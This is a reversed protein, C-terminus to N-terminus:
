ARANGNHTEDVHRGHDDGCQARHEFCYTPSLMAAYDDVVQEAVLSATTGPPLSAALRRLRAATEPEVIVALPVAGDYDPIRSIALEASVGLAAMVIAIDEPGLVAVGDRVHLEIQNDAFRNTLHWPPKRDM